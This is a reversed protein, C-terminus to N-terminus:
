LEVRSFFVVTCGPENGAARLALFVPDHVDAARATSRPLLWHTSDQPVGGARRMQQVCFESPARSFSVQFGATYDGTGPTYTAVAEVTTGNTFAVGATATIHQPTDGYANGATGGGVHGTTGSCGTLGANLLAACFLALLKNLNM